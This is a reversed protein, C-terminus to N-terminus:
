RMAEVAIVYKVWRDGYIGEAVLRLPRGHKVPLQLGNVKHALLMRARRVEELGFRHVFHDAGHIAVRRAEPRIGARKLLRWLDLGQWRANYAFYGPCILLVTREVQPLELVGEFTFELPREVLGEVRLRYGEPDVEMVTGMVGFSEIPDIELERNDITAPDMDKIRERPFGRPLVQLSSGRAMAKRRGRLLSIAGLAMVLFERRSIAKAM